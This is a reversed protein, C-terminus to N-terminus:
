QEKVLINFPATIPQDRNDFVLDSLTLSRATTGTTLGESIGVLSLFMRMFDLRIM